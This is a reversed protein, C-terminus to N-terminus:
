STWHIWNWHLASCGSLWCTLLGTYFVAPNRDFEELLYMNTCNKSRRLNSEWLKRPSIRKICMLEQPFFGNLWDRGDRGEPTILCLQSTKITSKQWPKEWKVRWLDSSFVWGAMNSKTMWSNTRLFIQLVEETTSPWFCLQFENCNSSICNFVCNFCSIIQIM